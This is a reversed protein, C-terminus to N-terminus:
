LTIKITGLTCLNVTYDRYNKNIIKLGQLRLKMCKLWIIKNRDHKL